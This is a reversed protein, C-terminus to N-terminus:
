PLWEREAVLAATRASVEAPPVGAGRWEARQAAAEELREGWAAALQRELWQRVLKALGPSRGSTSVSVLLDGRRVVAPVHFDCLEPRDEVNVLVGAARALAALRLSQPEPLGAVFLVRLEAIDKTTASTGLRVPDVGSTSLLAERRQLAEGAGILGIRAADPHLILPLV